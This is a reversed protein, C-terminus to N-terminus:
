KLVRLINPIFMSNEKYTDAMFYFSKVVKPYYSERIKLFDTWGLPTTYRLMDIGKSFLNDFNYVIGIGIPRTSWRNKFQKTLKPDFLPPLLSNKPVYNKVVHKGKSKLKEVTIIRSSSKESITTTNKNPASKPSPPPTEDDESECCYITIDIKLNDVKYDLLNKFHFLISL